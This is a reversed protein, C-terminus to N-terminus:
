DLSSGGGCPLQTWRRPPRSPARKGLATPEDLRGQESAALCAIDGDPMKSSVCTPRAMPLSASLGTGFLFTVPVGSWMGHCRTTRRQYAASIGRPPRRFRGWALPMRHQAPIFLSALFGGQGRECRAAVTGRHDHPAATPGHGSVADSSFHRQYTSCRWSLSQWSWGSLRHLQVKLASSRTGSLTDPLGGRRARQAPRSAAVHGM